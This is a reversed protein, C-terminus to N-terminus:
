ATQAVGYMDPRGPGANSRRSACGIDQALLYAQAVLCGNRRYHGTIRAAMAQLQPLSLQAGPVFGSLAIRQAEFHVTAGTVWLPDIVIKVEDAAPAASVARPEIRIEM